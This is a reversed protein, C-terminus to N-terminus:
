SEAEALPKGGRSRLDSLLTRIAWGAAVAIDEGTLDWHDRLELWASTHLFQLMATALRQDREPLDKVADAAVRTYSEVRRDRQALRVARGQPTSRVITALAAIRDFGTYIDPLTSLLEAESEPFRVNPGATTTVRSWVAQMLAERDPYYRYVTRRAVGAAEAIRDHNLRASDGSAMAELLAQEIRNRVDDRNAERKGSAKPERDM